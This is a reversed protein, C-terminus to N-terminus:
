CSMRGWSSNRFPVGVVMQATASETYSAVAELYSCEQNLLRFLNLGLPGLRQPIGAGVDASPRRAALFSVVAPM